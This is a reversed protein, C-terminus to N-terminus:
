VTYSQLTFEGNKITLMSLEKIYYTLDELDAEKVELFKDNKDYKGICFQSDSWENWSCVLVTYTSEDEDIVIGTESQSEFQDWFKNHIVKLKNM